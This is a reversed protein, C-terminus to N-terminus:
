KKAPCDMLVVGRDEYQKLEEDTVRLLVLSEQNRISEIISENLLRHNFTRKLYTLYCDHLKRYSAFHMNSGYEINQIISRSMKSYDAAENFTLGCLFRM